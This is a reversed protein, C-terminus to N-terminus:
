GGIIRFIVDILSNLVVGILAILGKWDDPKKPDLNLQVNDM